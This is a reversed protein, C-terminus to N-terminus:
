YENKITDRICNAIIHCLALHADEIVGYNNSRVIVSKNVIDKLKGGDFGLLGITTGKMEKAFKVAKILNESNGSGSIVMCIDNEEMLNKLQEVFISDYTDDNAWATMLPVNDTLALAKFRKKGEVSCLKNLDNMFHSATAASGGNGCIFVRKNNKFGELIIRIIENLDRKYVSRIGKNLESFYNEIFKQTNGM